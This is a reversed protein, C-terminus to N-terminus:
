QERWHVRMKKISAQKKSSCHILGGPDLSRSAANKFPADEDVQAFHTRTQCDTINVIKGRPERQMQGSPALRTSLAAHNPLSFM